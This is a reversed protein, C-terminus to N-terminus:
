KLRMTNLRGQEDTFYLRSGDTSVRLNFMRTDAAPSALLSSTGNTISLSYLDDPSTSLHSDTGSGATQTRPVACLITQANAFTCKDVSTAVTLKKRPDGKRDGRSDAYWLTPEYSNSSDAVSYLIHSGDPSWIASFNPGDVILNGVANGQGDILYIEQRGFSSQIDGTRSFAVIANTPSVNVDVKDANAGLNAVVRAQTGDATAIVLTRSSADNGISKSAVETGDASFSFSEWHKPLTVQTAQAFNYIVNSGDPFEIVAEAAHADFVVSQAQPFQVTSLATANGNADITYFRGDKPNYYAVGGTSTVTPSSIAATTLLTTLTRGGSAVASPQLVGPQGTTGGTEGGTGREGAAASGPLAGMTETSPTSPTVSPPHRFFLFYLGYVVLATFALFLVVRLIVKLRDSM